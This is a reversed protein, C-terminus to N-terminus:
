DKKMYGHGWSPGYVAGSATLPVGMFERTMVEGYRQAIRKAKGKPAEGILEDHVPLLVTPELESDAMVDLLARGMIERATSQIKYNVIKYAKNAEVPLRRGFPTTIWAIKRKTLAELRLRLVLKAKRGAPTDPCNWMDSRIEYYARLEDESLALRLVEKQQERKFKALTPFASSFSNVLDQAEKLSIGYQGAMKGAGGGYVWTFNINKARKYQDPTYSASWLKTATLVHLSEGRKAADIMSQEGSMAGAIRLEVQDFDASIISMGRSAVIM